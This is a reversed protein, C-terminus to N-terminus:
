PISATAVVRSRGTARQGRGERHCGPTSPMPREWLAAAPGSSGKPTPSLHSFCHCSPASLGAGQWPRCQCTQNPNILHFAPCLPSLSDTELPSQNEAARYCPHSWCLLSSPLGVAGPWCQLPPDVRGQVCGLRQGERAVRMGPWPRSILGEGPGGGGEGSERRSCSYCSKGGFM